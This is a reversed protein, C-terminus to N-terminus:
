EVNQLQERIREIENKCSLVRNIIETQNAKSAITNVERNIEQLIFELKRGILEDGGISQKFQSLHSKLRTIEESIDSRDAFLAIEKLVREDNLDLELNAQKLRKMLAARYDQVGESSIAFIEDVLTNIIGMRLELDTALVTGEEHRMARLNDVAESLAKKMLNWGDEANPLEPRILHSRAVDFLVRTDLDFSAGSKEALSELKKLTAKVSDEDWSLADGALINQVQVVINVRGRKLLQRLFQSLKHELSQWEKPLSAAMEFNRRNVSTLEVVIELQDNAASGRGFGTMSNM